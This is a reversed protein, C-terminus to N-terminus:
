GRELEKLWCRSSFGVVVSTTWFAPGTLRNEKTKKRWKKQFLVKRSLHCRNEDAPHGEQWGVLLILATFSVRPLSGMSPFDDSNENKRQGDNAGTPLATSLTGYSAPSHWEGVEMKHRFANRWRPNGSLHVPITLCRVDLFDDVQLIKYPLGVKTALGVVVLPPGLGYVVTGWRQIEVKVM